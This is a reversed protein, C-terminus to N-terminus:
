QREFKHKSVREYENKLKQRSRMLEVKGKDDGNREAQSIKEDVIEMEDELQRILIRRDNVKTKSDIVLDILLVTAAVAPSIIAM